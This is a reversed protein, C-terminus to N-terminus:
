NGIVSGPQTPLVLGKGSGGTIPPPFSWRLVPVRRAPRYGLRSTAGHLRYRLTGLWCLAYLRNRLKRLMRRHHIEARRLGSRLRLGKAGATQPRLACHRLAPPFPPSPVRGSGRLWDAPAQPPLRAAGFGPV